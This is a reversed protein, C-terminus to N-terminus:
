KIKCRIVSSKDRSGLKSLIYPASPSFTSFTLLDFIWFHNSSIKYNLHMQKIRLLVNEILPGCIFLFQTKDKWVIWGNATRCSISYHWYQSFPKWVLEYVKYNVENYNSDFYDDFDYCDIRNNYAENVLQSKYEASILCVPQKQTSAHLSSPSILHVVWLHAEHLAHYYKGFRVIEPLCSYYRFAM